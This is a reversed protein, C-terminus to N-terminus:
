LLDKGFLLLQIPKWLQNLITKNQCTQLMQPALSSELRLETKFLTPWCVFFMVILFPKSLLIMLLQRRHILDWIPGVFFTACAMVRGEVHRPATCQLSASCPPMVLLVSGCISCPHPNAAHCFCSTGRPLLLFVLM